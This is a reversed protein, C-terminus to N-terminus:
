SGAGVRLRYLVGRWIRLQADSLRLEPARRQFALNEPPSDTFAYDGLRLPFTYDPQRHLAPRFFHAFYQEPTPGAGLWAQNLALGDPDIPNVFHWTADLADRARDDEALRHMLLDAALGGAPENAHVGAVLLASRAGGHLTIMEIPAGTRSAGIQQRSFRRPYRVILADARARLQDARLFRAYGGPAKATPSRCGALAAAGAALLARRHLRILM